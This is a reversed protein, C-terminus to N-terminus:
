PLLRWVTWEPDYDQHSRHVFAYEGLTHLCRRPLRCPHSPDCTERAVDLLVHQVIDYRALLAEDVPTTLQAGWRDEEARAAVFALLAAVRGDGCEIARESV